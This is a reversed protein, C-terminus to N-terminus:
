PRIRPFCARTVRALECYRYRRSGCRARSRWGCTVCPESDVERRALEDDFCAPMVDHRQAAGADGGPGASQESADTLDAYWARLESVVHDSAYIVFFVALALLAAAGVAVDIGEGLGGCTGVGESLPRRRDSQLSGSNM